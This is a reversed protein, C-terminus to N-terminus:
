GKGKNENGTMQLLSWQMGQPGFSEVAFSRYHPQLGPFRRPLTHLEKEDLRRVIIVVAINDGM